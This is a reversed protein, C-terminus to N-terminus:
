AGTRAMRLNRLGFVVNLLGILGFLIPSVYSGGEADLAFNIAVGILIVGAILLMWGSPRDRTTRRAENAAEKTNATRVYKYAADKKSVM